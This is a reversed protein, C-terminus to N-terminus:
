GEQQDPELHTRNRNRNGERGPGREARSVARKGSARFATKTELQENKETGAFLGGTSLLSPSGQVKANQKLKSRLTTDQSLPAHPPAAPQAGLRLGESTM